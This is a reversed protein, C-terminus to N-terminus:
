IQHSSRTQPKANAPQLMQRIMAPTCQIKFCYGHSMPEFDCFFRTDAGAAFEDIFTTPLNSAPNWLEVIASQRTVYYARHEEATAPDDLSRPVTAEEHGISVSLLHLGYKGYDFNRLFTHADNM